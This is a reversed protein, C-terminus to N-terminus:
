PWRPVPVWEILGMAQALRLPVTPHRTYFGHCVAEHPQAGHTTSHCPICSEDRKAESVMGALRGPQLRMLNGPRFVCTACMAELVHIRGDYYPGKTM